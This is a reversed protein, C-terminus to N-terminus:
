FESISDCSDSSLLREIEKGKLRDSGNPKGKIRDFGPSFRGQKRRRWNPYMKHSEALISLLGSVSRKSEVNIKEDLGVIWAVYGHARGKGIAHAVVVVADAVFTRDRAKPAHM